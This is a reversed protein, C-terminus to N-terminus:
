TTIPRRPTKPLKVPCPDGRVADDRPCFKSGEAGTIQLRYRFGRSGGLLQLTQIEVNDRVGVLSPPGALRTVGDRCLEKWCVSHRRKWCLPNLTHNTDVRLETVVIRQREM